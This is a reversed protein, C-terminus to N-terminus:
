CRVYRNADARFCYKEEPLAVSKADDGLAKTRKGTVRIENQPPFFIWQYTDTTSDPGPAGPTVMSDHTWLVNIAKGDYQLRSDFVSLVGTSTMSTTTIEVGSGPGINGPQGWGHSVVYGVKRKAVAHGDCALVFAMGDQPNEWSLFLWRMPGAKTDFLRYEVREPNGADRELLAHPDPYVCRPSEAARAACSAIMVAFIIGFPRM